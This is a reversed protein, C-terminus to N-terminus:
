FVGTVVYDSGKMVIDGKIFDSGNGSSRQTSVTYKPLFHATKVLRILDIEYNANVEDAVNLKSNTLFFFVGGLGCVCEIRVAEGDPGASDSKLPTFRGSHQSILPGKM